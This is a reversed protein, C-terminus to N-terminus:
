NSKRLSNRRDHLVKAPVGAVVQWESVDRNVVAGAGIIAHSGITVGPLVIAGAGILVDDGIVVAAHHIPQEIVPRFPEDNYTNTISYILVGSSIACGEGISIGGLGSLVCNRGIHSDRGIRLPSAASGIYHSGGRLSVNESIRIAHMNELQLNRDISLGVVGFRPSLLFGRIRREIGFTSRHTLIVAFAAGLRAVLEVSWLPMLFRLISLRCFVTEIRSALQAFNTLSFNIRM